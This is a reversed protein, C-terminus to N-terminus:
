HGLAVASGDRRLARVTAGSGFETVVVNSSPALQRGDVSVTRVADPVLFAARTTGDEHREMVSLATSAALGNAACTYGTGEDNDAGFCTTREGTVIWAQTGDAAQVGRPEVGALDPFRRAMVAVMAKVRETPDQTSREAAAYSPTGTRASPADETALAGAALTAGASAVAVVTAARAVRMRTAFPM